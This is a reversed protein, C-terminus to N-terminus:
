TPLYSKAYFKFIYLYVVVYILTYYLLRLIKKPPLYFNAYIIAATEGFDREREEFSPAMKTFRAINLKYTVQWIDIDNKTKPLM